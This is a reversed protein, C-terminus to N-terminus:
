QRGTVLGLFANQWLAYPFREQALPAKIYAQSYGADVFSRPTGAAEGLYLWRLPM